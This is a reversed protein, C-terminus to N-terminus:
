FHFSWSGLFTLTTCSTLFFKTNKRNTYQLLIRNDMAHLGKNVGDKDQFTEPHKSQPSVSGSCKWVQYYWANVSWSPSAQYQFQLIQYFDVSFDLTGKGEQVCIRYDTKLLMRRLWSSYILFIGNHSPNCVCASAHTCVCVRMHVCVLM